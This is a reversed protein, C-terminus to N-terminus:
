LQHADWSSARDPSFFSAASCGSFTIPAPRMNYIALNIGTASSIGCIHWSMDQCSCKQHLEENMAQSLLLLQFTALHRPGQFGWPLSVQFFTKNRVWIPEAGPRAPTQPPFWCISNREGERVRMVIFRCNLYFIFYIKLSLSFFLSQFYVCFAGPFVALLPEKRLFCSYGSTRCWKSLKYRTSEAM